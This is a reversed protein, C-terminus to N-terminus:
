NRGQIKASLEGFLEWTKPFLESTKQSLESTKRPIEWSKEVVQSMRPSDSSSRCPILHAKPPNKYWQYSVYLGPALSIGGVEGVVQLQSVEATPM